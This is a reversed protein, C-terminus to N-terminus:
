KERGRNKGGGSEEEGGNRGKKGKQRQWIRKEIEDRTRGTALHLCYNRVVVMQIIGFSGWLGLGSIINSSTWQM